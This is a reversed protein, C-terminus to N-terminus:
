LGIRRDKELYAPVDFDINEAKRIGYRLDDYVSAKKQNALYSSPVIGSAPRNRQFSPRASATAM